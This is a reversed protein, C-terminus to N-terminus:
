DKEKKFLRAVLRDTFWRSFRTFFLLFYFYIFLDKHLYSLSECVSYLLSLSRSLFSLIKESINSTHKNYCYFIRPHFLLLFSRGEIWLNSPHKIWLPLCFTHVVAIFFRPILNLEWLKHIMWHGIILIM